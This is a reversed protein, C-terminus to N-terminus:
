LEIGTIVHDSFLNLSNREMVTQDFIPLKFEIKESVFLYDIKTKFASTVKNKPLIDTYGDIKITKGSEPNFDGIIVKPENEATYELIKNQFDNFSDKNPQPSHIGLYCNGKIKLSLWKGSKEVIGTGDTCEEVTLNKKAAAVIGAFSRKSPTFEKPYFFEYENLGSKVDNFVPGYQEIFFIMDPKHESIKNLVRCVREDDTVKSNKLVYASKEKPPINISIIKM